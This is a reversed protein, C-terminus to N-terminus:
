PAPPRPPVARDVLWDDGTRVLVVTYTGDDTDVAVEARYRTNAPLLRASGEEVKHLPVNAVDTSRYIAAAAPTFYGEVGTWWAQQDLDTRAFARLFAAARGRAQEASAPDPPAPTAPESPGFDDLPPPAPEGSRSPAPPATRAPAPAPATPFGAPAPGATTAANQGCGAVAAAALLALPFPLRRRRTV